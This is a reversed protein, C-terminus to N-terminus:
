PLRFIAGLRNELHQSALWGRCKGSPAGAAEKSQSEERRQRVKKDRGSVRAGRGGLTTLGEQRELEFSLELILDLVQCGQGWAELLEPLLIPLDDLFSSLSM